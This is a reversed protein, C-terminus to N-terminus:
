IYTNTYWKELILFILILLNGLTPAVNLCKKFYKNKNYISLM